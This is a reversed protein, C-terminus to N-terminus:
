CWTALNEGVLLWILSIAIATGQGHVVTGLGVGLAGSLPAAIVVGVLVPRANDVDLSAGPVTIALM